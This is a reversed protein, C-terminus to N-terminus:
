VKYNQRVWMKSTGLDWPKPKNRFFVIKTRAPVLQRRNFHHVDYCYFGDDRTFVKEGPPLIHSIWAQDSGPYGHCLKPSTNINFEEWVKTRTGPKLMIFAGQYPVHGKNYAAFEYDQTVIDTIDSMIIIDLDLLIIKESFHVKAEKSFLWLRRWCRQSIPDTDFYQQWLVRIGKSAGVYHNNVNTIVNFRFPVNIHRKCMAYLIEVHEPKCVSGWQYTVIDIM